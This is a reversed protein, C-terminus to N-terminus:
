KATPYLNSCIRPNHCCHLFFICDPRFGFEESRILFEYHSSLARTYLFPLYHTVEGPLPPQLLRIGGPGCAWRPYFASPNELFICSRLPKLLFRTTGGASDARDEFLTKPGAGVGAM